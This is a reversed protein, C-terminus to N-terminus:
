DDLPRLSLEGTVLTSIRGDQERVQLQGFEDLGLVQVQRVLSQAGENYILNVWEDRFALREQWRRLFQAQDIRRRWIVIEALIARLLEWREIQRDLAAQISIAPFGLESTPPKASLGVNIGVGLIAAQLQAGQWRAEVLVGAVKRESLLVDNPWKIHAQLGYLDELAECVALAGLATLKAAWREAMDPQRLVLSFALASGPPTFWARGLRGRGATQQDAVVLSLDAAGQEAWLGADDNTSGTAEFYRVEGLPLGQLIQELQQNDM